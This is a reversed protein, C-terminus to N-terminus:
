SLTLEDYFHTWALSLTISCGIMGIDPRWRYIVSAGSHRAANRTEHEVVKFHTEKFIKVRCSRFFGPLLALIM